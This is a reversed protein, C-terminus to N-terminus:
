KWNFLAINKLIRSGMDKLYVEVMFVIECNELVLNKLVFVQRQSM